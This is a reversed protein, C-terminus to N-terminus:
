RLRKLVGRKKIFLGFGVLSQQATKSKKFKSKPIENDAPSKYSVQHTPAM